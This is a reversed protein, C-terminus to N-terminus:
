HLESTHEESRRQLNSAGYAVVAIKMGSKRKSLAPNMGETRHKQPIERRHNGYERKFGARRVQLARTSITRSRIKRRHSELRPVPLLFSSRPHIGALVSTAMGASQTRCAVAEM